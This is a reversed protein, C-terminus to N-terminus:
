RTIENAQVRYYRCEDESDDPDALISIDYKSTRRSSTNNRDPELKFVHRKLHTYILVGDLVIADHRAINYEDRTIVLYDGPLDETTYTLIKGHEDYYVRYELPPPPPPINALMLNIFEQQQLPTLSTLDQNM